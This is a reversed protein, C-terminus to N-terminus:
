YRFNKCLFAIGTNCSRWLSTSWVKDCNGCHYLADRYVSDGDVTETTSVSNVYLLGWNSLPFLPLPLNTV